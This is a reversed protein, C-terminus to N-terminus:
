QMHEWSDGWIIKRAQAFITKDRKSVISRKLGEPTCLDLTVHGAGKLPRKVVRSKGEHTTEKCAIIYSYKEDEYGLSAQKTLRHWPSRPLRVSFHCWDNDQMPCTLNHPCPAFMTAGLEILQKRAQLINAFGKPTGPEILVVSNTASNWVQAILKQQGLSDLENLVYSATVLDHQPFHQMTKLDKTQWDVTLEPTSPMAEQLQLGLDIFCRNQEWLTACKIPHGLNALAWLVTGPGAGCDLITSVRHPLHALVASAVAFTAPLRVALYALCHAHSLVLKSHREGRYFQSLEGAALVLDKEPMKKIQTAIATSLHPPLM